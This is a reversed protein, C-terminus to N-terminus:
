QLIYGNNDYIAFERMVYEFNEIPYCIKVKDKLQEWVADVNDSNFYLSGSMLNPNERHRNPLAFMVMVADKKLAAWGWNEVLNECTFGLTKTYFDVTAQLDQTELMPTLSKLSYPM